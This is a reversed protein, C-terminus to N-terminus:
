IEDLFPKCRLIIQFGSNLYCKNGVNELGCIIDYEYVDNNNDIVEDEDEKEKIEYKKRYFLGNFKTHFKNEKNYHCNVAFLDYKINKGNKIYSEDIYKKLEIEDPIIYGRYEIDKLTFIFIESLYIITKKIQFYIM